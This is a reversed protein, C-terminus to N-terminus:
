GLARIAQEYWQSGIEPKLKYGYFKNYNFDRHHYLINSEVFTPLMIAVDDFEGPVEFLRHNAFTLLHSINHDHRRYKTRASEMSHEGMVFGEQDAQIIYDENVKIITLVTM